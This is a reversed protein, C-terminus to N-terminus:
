VDCLWNHHSTSSPVVFGMSHSVHLTHAENVASMDIPSDEGAPQCIQAVGPLFVNAGIESPEVETIAPETTMYAM